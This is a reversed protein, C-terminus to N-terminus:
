FAVAVTLGTRTGVRDLWRGSATQGLAYAVRFAIVVAAFDSNTWRFDTKLVPGLVSLTQRDIYNIVTSLFLLGGIYWRLHRIPRAV